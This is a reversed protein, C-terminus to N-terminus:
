EKIKIIKRKLYMIFERSINDNLFYLLVFYLFGGVSIGFIVNIIYWLNLQKFLLIALSMSLSAVIYKILPKTIYDVKVDNIYKKVYYVGYFTGSSEALVISITAGIYGYKPVLIFNSLLSIISMFIQGRLGIKEKGLPLFLQNYQWNGLSVTFVLGAMIILSQYAGEFEKGGFFLMIDKSLLILGCVSPISFIYIYNISKKLLTKYEGFNNEYLYTFKPLLVTSISLTISLALTYIQRTRSYFAVADASSNYGLFVSDFSTYMSIVVSSAFFILLRKFHKGLKLDSFNLRVFNKSYIFNFINAFSFAFVTIFAYIIYDSRQKVLLFTLILSIVKIALSRFTILKYEEIGMYFWDICFVNMFILIASTMFLNIENNTSPSIIIVVIFIGTSIITSILNIIFIESYTADLKKRDNKIKAIERIGYSTTGFTAFILFWKSFSIAFNYKGLNTVGLVRSVYPSTILPFLINIINLSFNYFINRGVSKSEKM